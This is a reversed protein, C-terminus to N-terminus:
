GHDAEKANDVALRLPSKKPEAQKAQLPAPFVEGYKLVQMRAWEATNQLHAYFDASIQLNPAGKRPRFDVAREDALLTRIPHELDPTGSSVNRCERFYFHLDISIMRALECIAPHGADYPMKDGWDIELEWRDVGTNSMTARLLCDRWHRIKFEVSGDSPLLHSPIGAALFEGHSGAYVTIYQGEETRSHEIMMPRLNGGYELKLDIGRERERQSARRAPKASVSKSKVKRAKAASMIAKAAQARALDVVTLASTNNSVTQVLGPRGETSPQPPTAAPVTSHVTAM